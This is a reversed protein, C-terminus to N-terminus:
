NAGARTIAPTDIREHLLKEIGTKLERIEAQQEKIAALLLATLRGYDVSKANGNQEFGVIEPVVVAVEEAVVGIDPKGNAKWNFSVGRMLEVKELAGKLPQINTKWRASSYTTWADALPETPSNQQITLINTPAITGIGVNGSSPYPSLLVNNGSQSYLLLDVGLAQVDIASGTDRILLCKHIPVHCDGIVFADKNATEGVNLQLTAQPNPTGVGFLIEGGSIPDIGTGQFLGSNGITRPSTFRPIFNTTGKGTIKHLDQNQVDQDQGWALSLFCACFAGFTALQMTLKSNM